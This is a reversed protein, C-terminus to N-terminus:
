QMQMQNLPTLTRQFVAKNTQKKALSGEIFFQHILTTLLRVGLENKDHNESVVTM